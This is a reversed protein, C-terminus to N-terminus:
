QEDTVGYQELYERNRQGVYLHANIRPLFWRYPVAKLMAKLRSKVMPRQSDGRMLVPVRHRWCARIAQWHCKRNWGIVLFADFRDPRILDSLEPTDCGRFHSLGPKRSINKLWHYSYGELLPVDWEFPVGFGAAAQGRSDQRHAYYVDLDVREALHRFWPAYYQIPHTVLVGIRLRPEGALAM